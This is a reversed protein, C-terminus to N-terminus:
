NMRNLNDYVSPPNTLCPLFLDYIFVCHNEELSFGFTKMWFFIRCLKNWIMIGAGRWRACEWPSLIIIPTSYLGCFLFSLCSLLGLKPTAEVICRDNDEALIIIHSLSLRIIEELYITPNERWSIGPTKIKGIKVM